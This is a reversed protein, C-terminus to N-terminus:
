MLLFVEPSSDWGNVGDGGLSHLSIRGSIDGSHLNHLEIASASIRLFILQSNKHVDAFVLFPFAQM